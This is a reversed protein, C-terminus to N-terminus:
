PLNRADQPGLTVPSSPCPPAQAGCLTLGEDDHVGQVCVTRPRFGLFQDAQDFLAPASHRTFSLRETVCGGPFVFYRVSAAPQRTTPEEYGRLDAPPSQLSIEAAGSVDCAPTM